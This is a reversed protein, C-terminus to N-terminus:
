LAPGMSKVAKKEPANALVEGLRGLRPNAAAYERASRGALNDPRDPDAGAALLMEATALDRAHVARILATEGRNNAADVDAKGALLLRVGDPFNSRAALLLPTNGDRDRLETEAGNQLLFALWPADKRRVVIHLATDGSDRDKINVITSGPKDMYKKAELVDRDKVAKIFQYSDSFQAAAPTAGALAAFMMAPVLLMRFLPRRGRLNRDIMRM